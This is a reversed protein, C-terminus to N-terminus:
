LGFVKIERKLDKYHWRFDALDGRRVMFFEAVEGEIDGDETCETSAYGMGELAVRVVRVEEPVGELCMMVLGRSIEAEGKKIEYLKM